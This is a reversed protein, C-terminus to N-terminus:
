RAVGLGQLHKGVSGPTTARTHGFFGGDDDAGARRPKCGRIFQQCARIIPRDHEFHALVHTTQRPGDIVFAIADVDAPSAPGLVTLTRAKKDRAGLCAACPCSARLTVLPLEGRHDDHWHLVLVTGLMEASKLRDNPPIVLNAM